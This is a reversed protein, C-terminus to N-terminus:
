TVTVHRTRPSIRVSLADIEPWCPGKSCQLPCNYTITPDILLDIQPRSLFTVNCHGDIQLTLLVPLVELFDAGRAWAAGGGEVRRARQTFSKWTCPYKM